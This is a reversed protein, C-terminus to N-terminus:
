TTQGRMPLVVCASIRWSGSKQRSMRYLALWQTGKLDRMQVRQAVEDGARQAQLFVVAAPRYVMPYSSRVMALFNEPSQFQEQISPAALAFAGIADDAAFAALQQEIVWRIAQAELKPIPKESPQASLTPALGIAALLLIRRRTNRM